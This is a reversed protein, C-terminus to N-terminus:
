VFFLAHLDRTFDDVKAADVLITMATSTLMLGRVSASGRIFDMAAPGGEDALVDGVVTVAGIDQVLSAGCPIAAKLAGDLALNDTRSFVVWTGGGGAACVFCPKLGCSALMTMADPSVACDSLFRLAVVDKRATVGCVSRPPRDPNVRVVTGERTPDSSLRTYIAIKARKAFEVADANLVKAGHRSLALMQDYDLEQFQQATVVVRPDASCVFLVDSYIECREANLAAALAVATTDSGGRGLTTIERKYSTGQFGAVIVIRGAALEDQVRFPRVEVIRAHSHSQNTMIGCQSGTLSIADEGLSQIAISLLAMTIREGVTLLMDMERMSPEPAIDTAMKMLEDTKGSMASVVVVVDNGARRTEVVHCAVKRIRDIDAVSSGGYKQVIIPLELVEFIGGTRAIIDPLGSEAGPAGAFQLLM